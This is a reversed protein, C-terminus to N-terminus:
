VLIVAVRTLQSTLIKIEGGGMYSFHLVDM